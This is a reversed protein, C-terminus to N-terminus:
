SIFITILGGGQEFSAWFVITILYVIGILKLRDREALSLSQEEGSEEAPLHDPHDRIRVRSEGLCFIVQAIFMGIAALFLGVHWNYQEGVYGVVLTSFLAGVNIGIYFITFGQDRRPDGPSYLRGVLTSINPKLLGCGLVIFCLGMYFATESDIVMIFHGTMQIFVGVRITAKQGVKDGVYGGLLSSFYVMMNYWGYLALAEGETWGLGPNATGKPAIMFLVLIAKMGYFSFREWMEVFFLMFLGLPHGFYEKERTGREETDFQHEERLM